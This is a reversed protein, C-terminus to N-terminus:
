EVAVCLLLVLHEKRMFYALHLTGKVEGRDTRYKDAFLSSARYTTGLLVGVENAERSRRNRAYSLLELPM